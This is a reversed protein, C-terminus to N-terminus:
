ACEPNTYRAFGVFTPGNACDNDVNLSVAGWTENHGGFYQKHRTNGVWHSAGVCLMNSTSPTGNWWAGWIWDPRPINTWFGDLGTSCVSGYLGVSQPPSAHLSEVWGRIFSKAAAVCTANNTDYAELDYVVPSDTGFGDALLASYAASAEQRGQTYATTTNSSFRHSFSTCPAQPGVWIPVLAWGMGNPGVHSVWTANLNPQSCARQIGGLYIYFVWYPSSDWWKQM